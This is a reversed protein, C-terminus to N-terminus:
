PGTLNVVTFGAPRPEHSRADEALEVCRRATAARSTGPPPLGAIRVAPFMDLRYVGTPGLFQEVSAFTGLRVTGGHASKVVLAKVADATPRPGLAALAKQIEDPPIEEIVSKGRDFAVRVQSADPGPFTELSVLAADAQLRKAVAGAFSRLADPGQGTRDVLAISVSGGPDDGAAKQSVAIGAKQVADPLVPQALAVRNQVLMM